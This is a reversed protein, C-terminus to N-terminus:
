AVSPDEIPLDIIVKTFEGHKSELFLRGGHDKILGHSISLGLGTGQGVPKTTFFPDTVRDLIDDPMGTGNDLFVLRVYSNRDEVISEGRIEITKKGSLRDPYKQNLAYKANSLLNLFVQQLQQRNATVLPLGEDIDMKLEIGDKKLQAKMLVLIEDLIERINVPGKEERNERGFSLLSRVIYAIRNGEKIIRGSIDQDGPSDSPGDMLIQAYNIISNVPNNIEHAVGAALEGISALHKARLAESTRKELERFLENWYVAVFLPVAWIHLNHRVPAYVADHIEGTAINLVMLFDDLFLFSFALYLVKPIDLGKRSGLALSSLVIGLLVSSIVHFLMDGWFQGFRAAPNTNLFAAWTPATVLYVLSTVAGGIMIFIHTSRQRRFFYTMFAYGILVCSFLTLTHECPPFFGLASEFSLLGRRGGYEFVFLFLERSLGVLAALGVFIDRRERRSKWERLAIYALICWFFSPLLFRVPSNQILNGRGAGFEALIDLIEATIDM